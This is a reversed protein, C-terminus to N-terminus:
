AGGGALLKDIAVAAEDMAVQVDKGEEMILTMQDSIIKDWEATPPEATDPYFQATDTATLYINRHAPPFSPDFWVEATDKRSPIVTGTNGLITSGDKSGLYSVWQFSQDPNKAAKDITDGLGHIMCISKGTPAYPIPALDYEFDKINDNFPKINWSGVIAMALRGTYFMANSDQGQLAEASPAQGNQRYSVYDRLAEVAAPENLTFKNREENLFTGGNSYVWNFYGEQYTNPALLGFQTTRDGEKKTLPEAYSHLAAWDWGAFADADSPYSLGAEELLNLNLAIAITDYDRPWSYAEGNYSYAAKLPDFNTDWATQLDAEAELYPQLNLLADRASLTAFNSMNLWFSDPASGGALSTWLKDWYQGWPTTQLEMTIEPAIEKFAAAQQEIAQAQNQDWFAHRLTVGAAAPAAAEGGETTTAAGPAAPAACALVTLGVAGVATMRLFDRRNISRNLAM